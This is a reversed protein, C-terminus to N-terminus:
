NNIAEPTSVCVFVCASTRMSVIRLFWTCAPGPQYVGPKIVCFGCYITISTHLHMPLQMVLLATSKTVKQITHIPDDFLSSLQQLIM